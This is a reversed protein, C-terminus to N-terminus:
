NVHIVHNPRFKTNTLICIDTLATLSIDIVVTYHILLTLLQCCASSCKILMISSCTSTRNNDVLWSSDLQRIKVQCEGTATCIHQWVVFPIIVVVELARHNKKKETHLPTFFFFVLNQSGACIGTTATLGTCIKWLPLEVLISIEGGSATIFNEFLRGNKLQWLAFFQM